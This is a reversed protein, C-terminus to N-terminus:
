RICLRIFNDAFSVIEVNSWFAVKQLVSKGATTMELRPQQARILLAGDNAEISVSTCRSVARFVSVLARFGFRDIPGIECEEDISLWEYLDVNRDLPSVVIKAWAEFNQMRASLLESLAAAAELPVPNNQNLESVAYAAQIFKAAESALSVFSAGKDDAATLLGYKVRIAPFRSLIRQLQYGRWARIIPRRKGANWKSIETECSPSPAATTMLLLFDADNNQAFSAKNWVTPWDIASRYRKCEVFWRQHVLSGSLDRVPLDGEIDRGGDAGPTRWVLNEVGLEQLLDFSLNEFESPTLSRLTESRDRKMPYSM